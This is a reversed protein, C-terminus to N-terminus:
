GRTGAGALEVVLSAGGAVEVVLGQAGQAVAEHADQVASKAVVSLVVFLGGPCV